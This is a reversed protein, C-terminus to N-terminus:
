LTADGKAKIESAKFNEILEMVKEVSAAQGFYFNVHSPELKLNSLVYHDKNLFDDFADAVEVDKIQLIIGHEKTDFVEM